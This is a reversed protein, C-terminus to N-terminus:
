PVARPPSDPRGGMPLLGPRNAPSHALAICLGHLGKLAPSQNSKSVEPQYTRYESDESDFKAAKGSKDNWGNPYLKGLTNLDLKIASM